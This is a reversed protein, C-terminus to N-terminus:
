PVLRLGGIIGVGGRWASTDFPTPGDAQDATIGICNIDVTKGASLDVLLGGGRRRRAVLYEVAYDRWSVPPELRILVAEPQPACDAATAEVVVARFVVGGGPAVFDWPDSAVLEAERAVVDPAVM